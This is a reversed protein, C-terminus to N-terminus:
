IDSKRDTQGDTRQAGHRLFRVDDSWLKQYVYTFHYYGWSNKWKKLIKIKKSTLPTFPCFIVWFSFYRAMDRSCYLMHDHYKTCKYLIIIDGLEKKLKEFNQNKMNNPPLLAFITWFWLFNHGDCKMDWSGYMM